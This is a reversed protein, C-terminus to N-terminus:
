DSFSQILAEAKIKSNVEYSMRATAAALRAGVVQDPQGLREFSEACEDLIAAARRAVAQYYDRQIRYSGEINDEALAITPLCEDCVYVEAKIIEDGDEIQEIVIQAAQRTQCIECLENTDM